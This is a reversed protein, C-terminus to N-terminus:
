NNTNKNDMRELIINYGGSGYNLCRNVRSITATSAGTEKSIIQYSKGEKLLQAVELRQSIDLLERVTFIDEFFRGCEDTDKLLLMARYLNEATERNFKEM